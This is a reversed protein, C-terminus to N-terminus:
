LERFIKPDVFMNFDHIFELLLFKLRVASLSLKIKLSKLLFSDKSTYLKRVALVLCTNKCFKGNHKQGCYNGCCWKNNKKKTTKFSQRCKFFIFVPLALKM